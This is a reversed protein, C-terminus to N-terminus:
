ACFSGFTCNTGLDGPLGLEGRFGTSGPIDIRLGREGTFINYM